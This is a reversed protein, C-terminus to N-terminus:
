KEVVFTQSRANYRKKEGGLMRLILTRLGSGVASAATGSRTGRLWRELQDMDSVSLAELNMALTYYYRAGSVEPALTTRFPRELVAQATTLTAFTGVEEIKGNQRRLVGYRQATPDYQVIYEWEVSNELDNLLGGARWLELRFRLSAPFGSRVLERVDAEAFLNVTTVTAGGDASSSPPAIDLRPTQAALPASFSLLAGAGIARM